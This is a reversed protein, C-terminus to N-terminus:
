FFYIWVLHFLNFNYAWYVLIKFLDLPIFSNIEYIVFACLINCDFTFTIRFIAWVRIIFCFISVVPWLSNQFLILTGTELDDM